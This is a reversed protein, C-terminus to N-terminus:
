CGTTFALDGAGVRTVGHPVLSILDLTLPLRNLSWRRTSRNRLAQILVAFAVLAAMVRGQLGRPTGVGLLQRM